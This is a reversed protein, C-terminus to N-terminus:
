KKKRIGFADTLKKNEALLEVSKAARLLRTEEKKAMDVYASYMLRHTPAMNRFNKGATANASLAQELEYPVSFSTRSPVTRNQRMADEFVARGRDTMLSADIMRKARAINLESWRSTPKRPSFRQMFRDKDVARVQGDIWGFCIAEEVANEYSVPNTGTHKKCYVLWIEKKQTHNEM